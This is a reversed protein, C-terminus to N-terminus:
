LPRKIRLTRRFAQLDFAGGNEVSASELFLLLSREDKSLDITNPEDM